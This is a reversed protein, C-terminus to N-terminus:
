KRIKRFYNIQLTDWVFEFIDSAPNEELDKKWIIEIQKKEIHYNFANNLDKINYLEKEGSFNASTLFIPWVETILKKQIDNNAVRIAITPYVSDNFFWVWLEDKFNIWYNIYDSNTVITYPNKYDKLFNIQDSTLDTFKELYKYDSVMISLPNSKDRKKIKYIREYSKIDDISCSIWYCTDTPIIYIM